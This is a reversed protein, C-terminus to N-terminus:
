LHRPASGKPSSNDAADAAAADTRPFAKGSESAPNDNADVAATTRENDNGNRETGTSTDAIDARPFAKSDDISSAGNWAQARMDAPSCQNSESPTVYKRSDGGKAGNYSCSDAATASIATAAFLVATVVARQFLHSQSM